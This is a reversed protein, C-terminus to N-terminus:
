FAHRVGFDFGTKDSTKARDNGYSTYLTTRKSLSYDAGLGLKKVTKTNTNENKQEAYGAKLAVAGMPVIAMVNWNKINKAANSPDVVGYGAGVTAVGLNYTALVATVKDNYRNQETGGGVTLPGAAYSLWLSTLNKTGDKVVAGTQATEKFGYSVSATLGSFSPSTYHIADTRGLGGSDEVGTAAGAAWPATAYGSPLFATSAQQLTGWPDTANVPGQLATLARGIKVSGFGGSLGVTSEGQFTPRTNGSGDNKGSEPSFRQALTFNAKLGGGLDETGRFRIQNAGNAADLRTKDAGIPNAISLEVVGDITVSSQAFAGTAALAALAILSKKM